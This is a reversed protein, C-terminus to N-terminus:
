RLYAHTTHRQMGYKANFNLLYSRSSYSINAAATSNAHERREAVYSIFLFTRCARNGKLNLVGLATALSCHDDQEFLWESVKQYSMPRPVLAVVFSTETSSVVYRSSNMSSNSSSRKAQYLILDKTPSRISDM